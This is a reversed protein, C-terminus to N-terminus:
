QIQLPETVRLNEGKIKALQRSGSGDQFMLLVDYRENAADFSDIVGPLGNFAPCKTLGEVVVSTGPSLVAPFAYVNPRVHPPATSFVPQSFVPQVIPAAPMPSNLMHPAAAHPASAAAAAYGAAYQAAYPGTYQPPTSFVPQQPPMAAVPPPPVQPAQAQNLVWPNSRVVGEEMLGVGDVHFFAGAVKKEEAQESLEKLEQQRRLKGDVAEKLAKGRWRGLQDRPVSSFLAEEDEEGCRADNGIGSGCAGAIEIERALKDAKRRLHQPVKSLDISTSYQSLDEKYTSVYGFLQQNARFQNWEGEDGASIEELCSEESSGKWPVLEREKGTQAAESIEKDTLWKPPKEQRSMDTSGMSSQRSVEQPSTTSNTEERSLEASERPTVTTASLCPSEPQAQAHAKCEKVDVKVDEPPPKRLENLKNLLTRTPDTVCGTFAARIDFSGEM